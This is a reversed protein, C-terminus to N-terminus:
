FSFHFLFTKTMPSKKSVRVRAIKKEDGFCLNALSAAGARLEAHYVSLLFILFSKFPADCGKSAFCSLCVSLCFKLFIHRHHHISSPHFGNRSSLSVHSFLARSPLSLWAGFKPLPASRKCKKTNRSRITGRWMKGRTDM